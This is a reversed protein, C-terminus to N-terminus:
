FISIKGKKFIVKTLFVPMLKPSKLSPPINLLYKKKVFIATVSKPKDITIQKPNETGSLDGEWEKFEWESSPNATLEIITGSNHKILRTFSKFSYCLHFLNILIILFSLILKM